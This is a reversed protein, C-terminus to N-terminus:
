IQIVYLENSFPEFIRHLDDLFTPHNLYFNLFNEKREQLVGEPFLKEKLSFIQQLEIEYKKEQAKQLRKELRELNKLTKQKEADITALLSKDIETTRSKITEFILSINKQEQSLSFENQIYKSLFKKKLLSDEQFFDQVSLQLKQMKKYQNQTLVLAFNRTLLMPMSLMPEIQKFYEFTKKLQLWYAIESPGGIYALNPLVLEQYIPRLLANPSFKEPNKEALDLIEKESFCLDTHLVEYLDAKPEIRERLDKDLYFFNIPRAQAQVHYGLRTLQLSTDKVLVETKREQLESKIIPFLSKKLKEDDGDIVLLGKEGFFEHLAYRTAQALTPLQTYAKEFVPIKEPLVSLIEALEDTKMRGIAGKQKSHWQYNKGFLRFHSIEAFDHDESGLWFIPVFHYEPLFDQLVEALRITSITKYVFYLEGFFISPQHATTITFTNESLLLEINRKEAEKLFIQEYQKQLSQYLLERKKSAFQKQAIIQRFTEKRPSFQFFPELIPSQNVYDLFIKSFFTTQHLPIKQLISMYAINEPLYLTETAYNKFLLTQKAFIIAIKGTYKDM